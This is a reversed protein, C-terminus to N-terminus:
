ENRSFPFKLSRFEDRDWTARLPCANKAECVCPMYEVIWSGIDEFGVAWEGHGLKWSGNERVWKNHVMRRHLYEHKGHRNEAPM